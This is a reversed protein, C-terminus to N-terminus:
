MGLISCIHESQLELSNHEGIKHEIWTVGPGYLYIRTAFVDPTFGAKRQPEHHAQMNLGVYREAILM